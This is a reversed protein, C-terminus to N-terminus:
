KARLVYVCAVVVPLGLGVWSLADAWGDALLASILGVASTIGLIIPWTWIRNIWIRNTKRTNM